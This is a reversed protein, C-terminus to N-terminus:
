EAVSKGETNLGCLYINAYQVALYNLERVWLDSKKVLVQVHIHIRHARREVTSVM